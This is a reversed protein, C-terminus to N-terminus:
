SAIVKRPVDSYLWCEISALVANHDRRKSGRLCCEWVSLVRWDQAELQALHKQDSKRNGEIKKRWFAANTKPWRFLHCQHGHWLCGHVFIVARHKPFVLDPIGPLDRRHLRFRFGRAFLGRRIIIEPKTDKGRIRSMCYRRQTPNLVDAM